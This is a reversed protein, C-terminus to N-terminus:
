RYDMKRLNYLSIIGVLPGLFLISFAYSWGVINVIYPIINISFISIFFGIALQLTVATGMYEKQGVETAMGSYQPSDAVVAMGWVLSIAIIVLNNRGFFLGILLSCAGSITLMSINFKAKGIKDAIRGGFLTTLSGLLFILFTIM